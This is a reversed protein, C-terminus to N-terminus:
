IVHQQNDRRALHWTPYRARRRLSKEEGRSDVTAFERLFTTYSAEAALDIPQLLTMNDDDDDDNSNANNNSNNAHNNNTTTTINLRTPRKQPWTWLSRKDTQAAFCPRRWLARLVRRRPVGGVHPDQRFSRGGIAPNTDM